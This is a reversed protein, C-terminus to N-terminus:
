QDREKGDSLLLMAMPAPLAPTRLRVAREAHRPFACRMMYQRRWSRRYAAIGEGVAAFYGKLIDVVPQMAQALVDSLNM